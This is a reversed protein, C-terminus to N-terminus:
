EENAFQYVTTSVYQRDPGFVVDPFNEKHISDPFYQTELALGCRDHYKAGAKGDQEGLFNGAYFQIGPLTTYVKMIRSTGPATVKGVLQLQGDADDIVWNHDYGGGFRLQEFDAGIEQGIRKAATFDMPTGKVPVIEGTPISAADASTYRSAKLWLEHDEISGGDQGKLNFYTHNTPNLITRKDSTFHYDLRLENEETVTYIVELKRNGPMGILGDADQVLLKISNKGEEVDFIRAHYGNKQDSHLNNGKENVPMHYEVGDVTFKAGGVRNASPGILAGLFGPNEYYPELSDHGLVVDALEGEQDPVWLERLIGGYNLIKACMGKGNELSYEYVTKGSNKDTGFEKRTVSM